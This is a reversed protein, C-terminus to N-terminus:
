RRTSPPDPHSAASSQPHSFYPIPEITRYAAYKFRENSTHADFANRRGTDIEARGPSIVELKFKQEEEVKKSRGDV